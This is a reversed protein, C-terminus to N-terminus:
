DSTQTVQDHIVRQSEPDPDQSTDQPRALSRLARQPPRKPSDHLLPSCQLAPQGRVRKARMTNLGEEVKDLGDEQKKGADIGGLFGDLVQNKVSMVVAASRPVPMELPNSTQRNPRRVPSVSRQAGDTGFKGDVEEHRGQSRRQKTSGSQLIMKNRQLTLTRTWRCALCIASVERGFDDSGGQSAVALGAFGCTRREEGDEAVWEGHGDGAASGDSQEAAEDERQM